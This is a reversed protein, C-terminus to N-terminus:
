EWLDWPELGQTKMAIQEASGQELEEPGWNEARDRVVVEEQGWTEQSGVEEAELDTGKGVGFGFIRSPHNQSQAESELCPQSKGTTVQHKVRISVMHDM